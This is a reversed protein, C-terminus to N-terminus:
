KQQDSSPSLRYLMLKAGIDGDINRATLFDSIAGDFDGARRKLVGRMYYGAASVPDISLLLQVDAGAGATDDVLLRAIARLMRAGILTSDLQLAQDCDSLADKVNSRNLKQQCTFEYTAATRQGGSSVMWHCITEDYQKSDLRGECNTRHEIADAFAKSAMDHQGLRDHVFGLDLYTRALYSGAGIAKNYDDLAAQYQGLEEETFGRANLGWASDPMLGLLTDYDTKAKDHLGIAEYARARLFLADPKESAPLGMALANTCASVVVRHSGYRCATAVDTIADPPVIPKATPDGEGVFTYSLRSWIRAAIPEGNRTAPQYHRSLVSRFAADNLHTSAAVEIPKLDSVAGDTKVIFTFSVNGSENLRRSIDPYTTEWYLLKPRVVGPPDPPAATLELVEPM